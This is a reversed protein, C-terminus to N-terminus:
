VGESDCEWVDSTGTDTTASLRVYPVGRQVLSNVSHLVAPFGPLSDSQHMFLWDKELFLLLNEGNPHGFPSREAQRCFRSIALGPHLNENENGSVIFSFTQNHKLVVEDDEVSRNNLQLYSEAFGGLETLNHREWNTLTNDLTKPSNYSLVGLFLPLSQEVGFDPMARWDMKSDEPPPSCYQSGLSMLYDDNSIQGSGLRCECDGEQMKFQKSFKGTALSAKQTIGTDRVGSSANHWVPVEGSSCRCMSQVTTNRSHQKAAQHVTSNSHHMLFFGELSVSVIVLIVVLTIFILYNKMM